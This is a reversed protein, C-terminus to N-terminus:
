IESRFTHFENETGFNKLYANVYTNLDPVVNDFDEMYAVFNWESFQESNVEVKSLLLDEIMITKSLIEWDKEQKKKKEYRYILFFSIPIMIVISRLIAILLM